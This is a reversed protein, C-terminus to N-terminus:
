EGICKKLLSRVESVRSEADPMVKTLKLKQGDEMSYGSSSQVLKIINIHEIDPDPHFEVKGGRSSFDIRKVGLPKAEMKLAAVIFLNEVRDDFIGLRDIIEERLEDLAETNEAGSIRKYFVLRAHVDPLYSDPILAPINLNVEVMSELSLQDPIERGSKLATMARSLLDSYLSFGIEQIHGSQEDGLIEGAGRIELDHSALTFGMGLEEISSIAELRKVADQSMSDEHPVVLYAYARHHSRGVRGRLQYLQALGFRDARNIIITNANSIDLGTEIITSCVLVNCRGHYFDLMVRELERERMKGHACALRAEPVLKQISSVMSDITEVKNHVFYVQGGRGLERLIAERLLTDSWERVFTKVALRKLPPTAIISLERTGSLAM